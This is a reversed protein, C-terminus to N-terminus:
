RQVWAAKQLYTSLGRSLRAGHAGHARPWVNGQSQWASIPTSMSVVADRPGAVQGARGAAAGCGCGADGWGGKLRIPAAASGLLGNGSDGMACTHAPSPSNAVGTPAFASFGTLNGKM